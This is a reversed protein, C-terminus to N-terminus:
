LGVAEIGGKLAARMRPEVQKQWRTLIIKTFGRAETGPHQVSAAFVVSGSPGGPRSAIVRPTTKAQYGGQFALANANVPEIKHPKTGKDVFGYIEDDTEVVYSRPREDIYFAPKNKWTVVTKEFDEQADRAISMMEDRVLTPMAKAMAQYKKSLGKGKFTLSQAM